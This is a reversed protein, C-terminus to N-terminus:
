DDLVIVDTKALTAMLKPFRGDGHDFTLEKFLRPLRPYRAAFGGSLCEPAPACAIWTKCAGTSGQLILCSVRRVPPAWHRIGGLRM